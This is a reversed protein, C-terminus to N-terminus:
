GSQFRLHLHPLDCQVSDYGPGDHLTDNLCLTGNAEDRRCFLHPLVLLSATRDGADCGGSGCADGKCGPGCTCVRFRCAPHLIDTDPHQVAHLGPPPSTEEAPVRVHTHIHSLTCIHPLFCHTVFNFPFETAFLVFSFVPVPLLRFPLIAAQIRSHTEAKGRDRQGVRKQSVHM